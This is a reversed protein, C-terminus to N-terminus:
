ASFLYIGDHKKDHHKCDIHIWGVSDEMRTIYKFAKNWPHHLIEQRVEEAPVGQVLLDLARGYSHQSYKSYYPSHPLRIGSWERPGGWAWNNITVPKNFYERIGDASKLIRVDMEGLAKDGYKYYSEADVFEQTKFYKPIYFVDDNAKKLGISWWNKNM